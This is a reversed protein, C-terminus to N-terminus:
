WDWPEYVLEILHGDPDHLYIQTAGDGRDRPGEAIDINNTQLTKLTENVNNISFCVHRSFTLDRGTKLFTKADGSEATADSTHITHVEYGGNIRFWQGKFDFPKPRQVQQMGLVDVYFHRSAELDGVVVSVHHLKGLKIL